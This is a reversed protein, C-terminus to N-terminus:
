MRMTTKSPGVGTCAIGAAVRFAAQRTRVGEKGGGRGGHADDEEKKDREEEEGADSDSDSDDPDIVHTEPIALPAAADHGAIKAHRKMLTALEAKRTLATKLVLSNAALPPLNQGPSLVADWAIDRAKAWQLIAKDDCPDDVRAWGLRRTDPCLM